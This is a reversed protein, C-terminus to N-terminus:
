VDEQKETWNQYVIVLIMLAVALIVGIASAVGVNRRSFLWNFIQVTLVETGAAGGNLLFIDEFKYFTWIFRLLFLTAIVGRLQPITIYFLRQSPTAGDVEAAEYMDTPIAQLRALIFLFAFPFYRWAEFLIVTILAIPVPIELGAITVPLGRTTLWGIAETGELGLGANIIGFNKDLMLRWIFATSVVPAIYPFLLFARFVGRGPFSERAVLAAWLGVVIALVTSAITYILTVRLGVWFRPGVGDGYNDLSLNSLDFLNLDALDRMSIPQFSLIINWLMPFLIIVIVLLLGPLVLSYALRAEKARLSIGRQQPQSTSEVHTNAM